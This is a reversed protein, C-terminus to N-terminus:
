RPRRAHPFECGSGEGGVVDLDIHADTCRGAPLIRALKPASRPLAGVPLCTCQGADHHRQLLYRLCRQGDYRYATGFIFPMQITARVPRLYARSDMPHILSINLARRESRWATFSGRARRDSVLGYVCAAGNQVVMGYDHLEETAVAGAQGALRVRRVGCCRKKLTKACAECDCRANPKRRRRITGKLLSRQPGFCMKWARYTDANSCSDFHGCTLRTTPMAVSHVPRYRACGELSVLQPVTAPRLRLRWWGMRRAGQGQHRRAARCIWPWVDALWERNPRWPGYIQGAASLVAPDSDLFVDRNDGYGRGAKLAMTITHRLWNSRSWGRAAPKQTFCALDVVGAQSLHCNTSLANNSFRGTGPSFM